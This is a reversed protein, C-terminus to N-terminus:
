DIWIVHFTYAYEGVPIQYQPHINRTWGTDGGLGAHVADLSLYTCSSEPLEDAYDAKHYEEPTWPLASFHFHSHGTIRVGKGEANTVCLWRVDERGGCECCRIYDEHMEEVTMHYRGIFASSKRDAYNEWPGRGYWSVQDYEKPLRIGTGIRPLTILGTRNYFIASISIGSESLLYTKQIQIAGDLYCVKATLIAKDKLCVFDIEEVDAEADYLGAAKWQNYYGCDGQAEDIGTPARFFLNEEQEFTGTDKRFVLCRSGAQIRLLKEDESALIIDKSSHVQMDKDMWKVSGEAEIQKQYIVNGENDSLYINCFAEGRVLSRNYPLVLEASEMPEVDLTIEGREATVGDCVLEWICSLEKLNTRHYENSIVYKGEMGHWSTYSIQVPAQMFKMEKAQPKESLDPYVVGNLCMDRVPDMVEEQFAGAYRFVVKGDEQIQPMAKDQFDWVFGGQFREFSRVKDWYEDLNGNSNSKAYAYECMIYPRRETALCSYIWDNGPYMDCRIDSLSAKSGSSEYQVPRNDYEKLWGRMAGHNTGAGSENGLSWIIVSPHNKDRLCMRMAREVYVSMWQQDFSLAAGYGHTEVNAEDVVYIGMEDCFDYFNVAKPYHCTRIANFNLERIKKLTARLEEETVYRGTYGSWEHLNTGRVIMRKRNIELIGDEIRIERFGVKCSEVDLTVGEKNKQEVVLTYLDPKETDWLAPAKVAICAVPTYDEILYGTYEAFPNLKLVEMEKGDPDFLHLVCYDEGFLETRRDPYIKVYLSADEMTEGYETWVKFDELHSRSQFRLMVDRQIGHTHWYDQDEVYSHASYQYVRVALENEGAVVYETIDFEADLKSDQSFGVYKGNVVLEFATEVGGFQLLVRRELERETLSFGTYYCVNLNEKPVYPANLIYEGQRVQIEFSKDGANRNFPYIVNTYIPKGVGHFEWNSPVPMDRTEEPKIFWQEPTEEVSPYVAIQWIGNLSRCNGSKDRKCEKAEEVDRYCYFPAHMKERGWSSIKSSLEMFNM